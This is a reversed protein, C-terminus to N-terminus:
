FVGIQRSDVGNLNSDSKSDADIDKIMKTGVQVGDSTVYSDFKITQLINIFWKTNLNFDFRFM